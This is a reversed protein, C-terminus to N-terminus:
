RYGILLFSFIILISILLGIILKITNKIRESFFKYNKKAYIVQFTIIIPYVLVITGYIFAIIIASFGYYTKSELTLGFNVGFICSYVLYLYPIFSLFYIVLLIKGKNIKKNDLNKENTYKYKDIVYYVIYCFPILLIFISIIGVSLNFELIPEIFGYLDLYKFKITNIVCRNIGLFLFIIYPICFLYFLIDKISKKGM